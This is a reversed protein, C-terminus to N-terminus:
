FVPKKNKCPKQDPVHIQIHTKELNKVLNETERELLSM